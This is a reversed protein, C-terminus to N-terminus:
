ERSLRFVGVSEARGKLEHNGINVPNFQPGLRRATEESILVSVEPNDPFVEKCLQELRQGINVTDGIITYNIRGPAGINGVTAEGTHIGIRVHVAAEGSACRRGNEERIAKEIAIAARCARDAADDQPDPAGWFAMVSDGIFKDVTGGETEICGALIEFHRNVLGAVEPASLGESITSFGVIDTFMVTVERERSKLDDPEDRRILREVIKKPIYLEFWRLARLMANFAKSQEDLERFVSAPLDGVKDVDLERVQSAASAFAKIPRAIRRGLLAGAVLSLLLMGVGVFISIALRRIETGIDSAKFYAGVILPEPGFGPVTRYLYVYRVGGVVAVRVHTDPALDIPVDQEPKSTWIAALVRDKFTAVEPLPQNNSRDKFGGALSPHALVRDNGYLIFHTGTDREDVRSMFRSLEQASVTAVVVGLATGNRRVLDVVHLLTNKHQEHWVPGTWIVVDKLDKWRDRVDSDNSFDNEELKIQGGPARRATISQYSTNIFSVAQVQPAAALAGKLLHGFQEHDDPDVDKALIRDAIFTVQFQAPSLHRRVQEVLYDISQNVNAGLLSFTNKQGLWIGVGLVTGVSILVLLCIAAALTITISLRGQWRNLRKDHRSTRTVSKSGDTEMLSKKM